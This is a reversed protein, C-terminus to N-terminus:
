EQQDRVQEQQDTTSLFSKTHDTNVHCLTAPLIFGRIYPFCGAKNNIHWSVAPIFLSRWGRSVNEKRSLYELVDVASGALLSLEPVAATQSSDRSEGWGM